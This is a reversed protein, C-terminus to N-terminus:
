FSEALVDLSVLPLVRHADTGLRLFDVARWVPLYLGHHLAVEARTGPSDHWESGVIMGESYRCIWSVDATLLARRDIGVAALEDLTGRKGQPDLGVSRDHEAPSFVEHGMARIRPATDNFWQAGFGALGLMKNGIYLRM